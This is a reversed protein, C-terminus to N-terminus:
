RPRASAVVTLTDGGGCLRDLAVSLPFFLLYPVSMLRRAASGRFAPRGLLAFQLTLPLAGLTTRTSSSLV